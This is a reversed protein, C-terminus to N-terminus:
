LLSAVLSSLSTGGVGSASDLGGKKAGEPTVTGQGIAALQAALNANDTTVSQRYLTVKNGLQEKLRRNEDLAKQLEALEGDQAIQDLTAQYAQNFANNGAAEAIAAEQGKLAQTQLTVAAMPDLQLAQAFEPSMALQGNGTAQGGAALGGSPPAQQPQSPVIASADDPKLDAYKKTFGSKGLQKYELLLEYGERTVSKSSDVAGPFYELIVKMYRHASATSIGSLNSVQSYTLPFEVSIETTAANTELATGAENSTINGATELGEFGTTM